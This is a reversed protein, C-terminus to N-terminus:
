RQKAVPVTVYSPLGTIRPGYVEWGVIKRSFVDVILDLCFFM